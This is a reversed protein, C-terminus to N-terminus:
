SKLPCRDDEGAWCVMWEEGTIAGEDKKGADGAGDQQNSDVM